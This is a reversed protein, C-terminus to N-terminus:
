PFDHKADRWSIEHRGVSQTSIQIWWLRQVHTNIYTSTRRQFCVKQRTFNTPAGCIHDSYEKPPSLFLLGPQCKALTRPLTGLIIYSHAYLRVPTRLSPYYIIWQTRHLCNTSTCIFIIYITLQIAGYPRTQPQSPVGNNNPCRHEIRRNQITSDLRSKIIIDPFKILSNGEFYLHIGATSLCNTVLNRSYYPTVAKSIMERIDSSSQVLLLIIMYRTHHVSASLLM